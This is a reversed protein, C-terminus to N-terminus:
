AAFQKYFERIHRRTTHSAPYEANEDIKGNVVRAVLTGYSRLEITGDQFDVVQAKGYFSKRSDYRASLEYIIPKNM